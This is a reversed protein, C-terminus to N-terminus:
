PQRVAFVEGARGLVNAQRLRRQAARDGSQFLLQTLWHELALAAAHYEGLDAPQQVRPGLLNDRQDVVGLGLDGVVALGAVHSQGGDGVM